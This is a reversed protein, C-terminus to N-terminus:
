DPILKYLIDKERVRNKTKIGISDGSKAEEIRKHEIEISKVKQEVDTTYGMIRIRDGVKLPATLDVVAVSIKPYYHTVKGVKEMTVMNTFIFTSMTLYKSINSPCHDM